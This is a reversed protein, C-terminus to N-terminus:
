NNETLLHQLYRQVLLSKGVFEQVLLFLPLGRRVWVGAGTSPAQLTAPIVDMSHFSLSFVVVCISPRFDKLIQITIWVYYYELVEELEPLKSDM